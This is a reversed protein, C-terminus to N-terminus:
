KMDHFYFLVFATYLSSSVATQQLTCNVFTIKVVTFEGNRYFSILQIM